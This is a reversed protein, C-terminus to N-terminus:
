MPTSSWFRQASRMWIKCSAFAFGVDMLSSAVIAPAHRALVREREPDAGDVAGAAEAQPLVAEALSAEAEVQAGARVAAETRSGAPGAAEAPSGAAVAARAQPEAGGAQEVVDGQPRGTESIGM